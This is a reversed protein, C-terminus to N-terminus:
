RHLSQWTTSMGVSKGKLKEGKLSWLRVCSESSGAAMLSSDQSFEVSALSHYQDSFSVHGSSHSM